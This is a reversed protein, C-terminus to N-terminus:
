RIEWEEDVIEAETSQEVFYIIEGMVGDVPANHHVIYVAGNFILQYIDQTEVKPIWLKNYLSLLCIERM